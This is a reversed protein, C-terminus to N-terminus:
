GDIAARIETASKTNLAKVLRGQHETVFDVMVINPMFRKLENAASGQEVNVNSPLMDRALGTCRMLLEQHTGTWM